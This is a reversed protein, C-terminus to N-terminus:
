GSGQRRAIEEKAKNIGIGMAITAVFLGLLGTSLGLAFPSKGVILTVVISVIVVAWCIALIITAARIRKQLRETSLEKIDKAM